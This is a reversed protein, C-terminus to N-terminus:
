DVPVTVRATVKVKRRIANGFVNPVQVDSVHSMSRDARSWISLYLDELALADRFANAQEQLALIIAATPRAAGSADAVSVFNAWPGLKLRGTRRQRPRDVKTNMDSGDPAEIAMAEWGLGKLVLDITAQRPMEAAAYAANLTGFVTGVPSGLNTTGDGKVAGGMQALTMPGYVKLDAMNAARSLSAGLVTSLSRGYTANAANLFTDFWLDGITDAVEAPTAASGDAIVAFSTSADDKVDGSVAKFTAKCTYLEIAM